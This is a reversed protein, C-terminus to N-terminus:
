FAFKIGFQLTRPRHADVPHLFSNGTLCDVGDGGAASYNAGPGGYCNVTNNARNGLISDYIRFQTHNFLNFAELRFELNRSEKIRIDKLLAMDFNWRGPNNLVNRGADGFTLGRPAVFAGPNLLLPGFSKGNDGGQPIPGNAGGVRDPYSGMALYNAVGANDPVSAGDSGGANYVSFPTGSQYITIGSLQWGSLPGTPQQRKGTFLRQLPVQYVYSISLLQREDFNSSAWNSRLDYSNITPDFRDSADDLSHSYTYSIGLTLPGETRRVTAQFANYSSNAINDLSVIQGLGLYPRFSDPVPLAGPSVQGFCAAELNTFAPNGQAVVAGNTLVFGLNGNNFQQVTCDGAFNASGPPATLNLLPMFPQGPGYPNESAPVPPLQNIQREATLHTGKSGVYAFTAVMGKPLERQVSVSWQQVYPWVAKTPISTVNLPFSPSAVNCTNFNAGGICSYSFPYNQTMDLALPASGELSGTNAENGTGHEFFIGYGGRIATKGNGFPDWAFGVRPAPNFLHGQMCSSPVGNFGCRVLGNTIHPDLNNVDLPIPTYNGFQDVSGLILQGTPGYIGVQSGLAQNFASPVWNYVNNNTEHYTGFLSIRVGLNLTFRPTVKWDDQFYPEATQYRQHYTLQASDQRYSRISGVGLLFDAFANGTSGIGVNTFTLLGQVDGTASGSVSNTQDRQYFIFQSGFQMFHTGAQKSMTDGFSYTPNDHTWPMYAPDVAFGNGGYERNNGSIVVGPVKGGFGNNFLYGMPCELNGNQDPGCPADLAAPRQYTAGPGNTDTLTITSNTYAFLFENLLTPSLTTTYRAVLSLGPGVFNNEITPFSNQVIGFQPTATVTDWADHAFRFMFRNKENFYHDIRFLEERWHTPPSVTTAYCSQTISNCGATANPAPIIGTGLIALANRDLSIGSSTLQNNQYPVILSAFGNGFGPCDPYKSRPFGNAYASSNVAPCVDSFDGQREALSPVAQNFEFPSKEFRYEESFFFFTKDRKANYHNPIYIPGGLTFGADNRRYLPAGKTEDFFNRANLHENRGFYYLNGHFQETGAKTTVLVTGSATRGYMAGYNSTLVKVEQIADLSPYVILTNVAGNFGVNLLDSGDMDFTNYEVRGGNVSYAASGLVGVKAEDQGTQNSVGPALTIFQTFNRGNLGLSVIEKRTITGSLVANETEVQAVTQGEVTTTSTTTAPELVVDLRMTQGATVTVNEAQFDKFGPSSVVLRYAGASLGLVSYEGHDNSVSRQKVGANNELTVIAGPFVAGSKDTVTGAIGTSVTSEQAFGCLVAAILLFLSAAIKM